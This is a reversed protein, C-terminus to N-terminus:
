VCQQYRTTLVIRALVLMTSPFYLDKADSMLLAPVKRDDKVCRALAAILKFGRGGFPSVATGSSTEIVFPGVDGQESWLDGLSGIHDRAKIRAWALYLPIRIANYAFEPRFNRAPAPKAGALSIWDTPLHEPGFRSDDILKLGSKRLGAWDVEPAVTELAEFAPFVWYSLNVVPGDPQQGHGFGDTAPMLIPGFASPQVLKEGISHAIRRAAERYNPEKWRDAAEVLAWAILLDGDAADNSDTVHPDSRPEWRWAALGDPRVLLQQQTWRWITAFGKADGAFAALLMGYGQGESHSIGGNADDVVRGDARVFRRKYRYWAQPLWVALPSQEQWSPLRGFPSQSIPLTVAAYRDSAVAAGHFPVLMALLAFAFDRRAM